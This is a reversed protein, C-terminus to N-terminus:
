TPMQHSRLMLRFFAIDFTLINGDPGLTLSFPIYLAQRFINVCYLEFFRVQNTDQTVSNVSDLLLIQPSDILKSSRILSTPAFSQIFLPKEKWEKSLYKGGYGYKLLTKM